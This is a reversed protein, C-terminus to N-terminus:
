LRVVDDPMPAGVGAAHSLVLNKQLQQLQGHEIRTQALLGFGTNVGYATQDKAVIRALSNAGAEIAALAQANFSVEVPYEYAVRLQALGLPKGILLLKKAM